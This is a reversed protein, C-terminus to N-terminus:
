LFMILSLQGLSKIANEVSKKPFGMEVIQGIIPNPPFDKQIESKKKKHSSCETNPTTADEKISVPKDNNIKSSSSKELNGEATLFQTLNLAALQMEELTFGPKLPSPQTAKVLIKQVLLVPTQDTEEDSTQQETTQETSNIHYKLIKRLRYQNSHLTRTANLCSLINQQVRLYQQSIQGIFSIINNM